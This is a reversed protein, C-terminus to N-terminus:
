LSRIQPHRHLSLLGIQRRRAMIPKQRKVVRKGLQEADLGYVALQESPRVYLRPLPYKLDAATGAIQRDESLLQIRLGLDYPKIGVGLREDAGPSLRFPFPERDSEIM